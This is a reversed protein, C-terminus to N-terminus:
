KKLHVLFIPYALLGHRTWYIRNSVPNKPKHREEDGRGGDWAGVEM